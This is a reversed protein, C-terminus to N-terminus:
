LFIGGPVLAKGIGVEVSRTWMAKRIVLMEGICDSAINGTFLEFVSLENGIGLVFFYPGLGTGVFNAVYRLTNSFSSGFAGLVDFACAGHKEDMAVLDWLPLIYRISSGDAHDSWFFIFFFAGLDGATTVLRVVIPINSSFGGTEFGGFQVDVADNRNKGSCM